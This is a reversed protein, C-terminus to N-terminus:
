GNKGLLSIPEYHIKNMPEEIAWCDKPFWVGGNKRLRIADGLGEVYGKIEWSLARDIKNELPDVMLEKILYIPKEKDTPM